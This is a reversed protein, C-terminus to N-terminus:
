EERTDSCETLLRPARPAQPAGVVNRNRDALHIQLRLAERLARRATSPSAGDVLQRPLGEDANGLGSRRRDCGRRASPSIMLDGGFRWNCFLSPVEIWVLPPVM